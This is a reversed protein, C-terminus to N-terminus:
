DIFVDLDEVVFKSKGFAIIILRTQIRAIQTVSCQLLAVTLDCVDHYLVHRFSCLQEVHKVCLETISFLM